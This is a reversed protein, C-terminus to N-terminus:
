PSASEVEDLLAQALKPEGPVNAGRLSCYHLFREVVPNSEGFELRISRVEHAMNKLQVAEAWFLYKSRRSSIM